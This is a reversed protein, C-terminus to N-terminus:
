LGSATGTAWGVADFCQFLVSFMKKIQDSGGKSDMICMFTDMFCKTTMLLVTHAMVIASTLLQWGAV